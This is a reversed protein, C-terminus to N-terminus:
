GDREWAGDVAIFPTRLAPAYDEVRANFQLLVSEAHTAPQRAREAAWTTAVVGSAIATSFSTGSWLAWGTENAPPSGGAAGPLDPFTPATYVGVVGPEPENIRTVEGGFTAIHDGYERDDGANSYSAAQGADGVTAAVGIVSPYCAPLRPGLRPRGSEVRRRSDNGAAAVGLCNNALLYRMLHDLGRHLMRTTEEVRARNGAMWARDDISAPQGNARPLDVTPADPIFDPDNPRNVGFWMWPLHELKPGFGLSMNIVLPEDAPKRAVEDSLVRLLLHLDGVGRPNLVPRLRLDAHPALEHILGAVFLGHDSMDYDHVRGDPNPALGLGDDRMARAAAAHWDQLPHAELLDFVAELQGNTAAFRRAQLRAQHWRPATDLVLVPVHAAAPLDALRRGDFAPERPTYRYRWRGGGPPQTPRPLSAPSGDAHAEQASGLWHPMVGVPTLRADALPQLAAAGHDLLSNVASKVPAHEAHQELDYFLFGLPPRGPARFVIPNPRRQSPHLAGGTQGALHSNIVQAVQAHVQQQQPEEQDPLEVAFVIEGPRYQWPQSPTNQAM